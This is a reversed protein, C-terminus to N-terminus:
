LLSAEQKASLEIHSLKRQKSGKPQNHTEIEEQPVVLCSTVSDALEKLRKLLYKRRVDDSKEYHKVFLHFEPHNDLDGHDSLTPIGSLKKWFSHVALLPIPCKDHDYVAIEHACPLGHTCHIVCMCSESDLASLAGGKREALILDIAERSILGRVEKLTLIRYEHKVSNISREFSIRIETIQETIMSHMARWLGVFDYLSTRDTIFHETLDVNMFQSELDKDNSSLELQDVGVLESDKPILHDHTNEDQFITDLQIYDLKDSEQITRWDNETTENELSSNANENKIPEQGNDEM